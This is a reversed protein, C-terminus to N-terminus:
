GMVSSIIGDTIEVPTGAVLSTTAGIRIVGTGSNTTVPGVIFKSEPISASDLNAQSVDSNWIIAFSAEGSALANVANPFGTISIFKSNNVISSKEQMDWVVGNFHALVNVASLKYNNWNTAIHEATPQVGKYITIASASSLTGQM